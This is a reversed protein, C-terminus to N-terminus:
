GQGGSVRCAPRGRLGRPGQLGVGQVGPVRYAWGKVGQSGTSGGWHGSWRASREKGIQDQKNLWPKVFTIKGLSQWGDRFHCRRSLFWLVILAANRVFQVTILPSPSSFSGDKPHSGNSAWSPRLTESKARNSQWRHQQSAPFVQWGLDTGFFSHLLRRVNNWNCYSM